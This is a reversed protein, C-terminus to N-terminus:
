PQLTEIASPAIVADVTGDADRDIELRLTSPDHRTAFRIVLRTGVPADRESLDFTARTRREWDTFANIRLTVDRVDTVHM